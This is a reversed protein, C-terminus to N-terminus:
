EGPNSYNKYYCSPCVDSDPLFKSGDVHFHCEFCVEDGCDDCTITNAVEDGCADCEYMIM